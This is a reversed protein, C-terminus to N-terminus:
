SDRRRCPRAAPGPVSGPRHRLRAAPAAARAQYLTRHPRHRNYFDEYERLVSATADQQAIEQGFVGLLPQALGSLAARKVRGAGAVPWATLEAPGSPAYKRV